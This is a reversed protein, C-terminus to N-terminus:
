VRMSAYAGGGWCCYLPTGISTAGSLSPTLFSALARDSLRYCLARGKNEFVSEEHEGAFQFSIGRCRDLTISFCAVIRQDRTEQDVIEASGKKAGRVRM